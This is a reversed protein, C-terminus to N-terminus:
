SRPADPAILADIVARHATRSWLLGNHGHGDLVLEQAGRVAARVPPLVQHDYRARIVVTPVPEDGENLRRVWPGAPDLVDRLVPPGLRFLSTGAHPGGLSVFRHVWPAGGFLKIWARCAVAGLSHGVLDVPGVAEALPRAVADIRHVIRDLGLRTSPYGVRVVRTFGAAYLRRQLPRFVDPHGLYGHVLVVPRDLEPRTSAPPAPLPHIWRAIPWLASRVTNI